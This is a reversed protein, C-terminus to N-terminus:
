KLMGATITTALNSYSWYCGSLPLTFTYVSNNQFTTDFILATPICTHGAELAPGDGDPVSLSDVLIVSNSETCGNGSATLRETVSNSSDSCGECEFNAYAWFYDCQQQFYNLTIIPQWAQTLVIPAAAIGTSNCIAAVTVTVNGFITWPATQVVLQTSQGAKLITSNFIVGWDTPLTSAAQNYFVTADQQLNTPNLYTLNYTHYTQTEDYCYCKGDAATVSLYGFGVQLSVSAYPQGVSLTVSVSNPAQSPQNAVEVSYTGARDESFVVRGLALGASGSAATQSTGNPAIVSVNVGATLSTGALVLVTIQGKIPAGEVAADLPMHNVCALALTATLAFCFILGRM